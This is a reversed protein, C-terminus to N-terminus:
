RIKNIFILIFVDLPMEFSDEDLELQVYRRDINILNDVKNNLYM